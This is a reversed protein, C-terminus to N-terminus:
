DAADSPQDDGDDEEPEVDCRNGGDAQHETGDKQERGDM